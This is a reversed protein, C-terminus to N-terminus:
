KKLLKITKTEADYELKKYDKRNYKSINDKYVSYLLVIENEECEAKKLFVESEVDEKDKELDDLIDKEIKRAYELMNENSDIITLIAKVGDNIKLTTVERFNCNGDTVGFNVVCGKNKKVDVVFELDSTMSNYKNSIYFHTTLVNVVDNRNKYIHALEITKGEINKTFNNEICYKINRAKKIMSWLFDKKINNM